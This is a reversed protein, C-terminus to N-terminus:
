INFLGSATESVSIVCPQCHPNRSKVFAGVSESAFMWGRPNLKLYNWCRIRIMLTGETNGDALLSATRRNKNFLSLLRTVEVIGDGTGWQM